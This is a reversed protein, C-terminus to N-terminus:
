SVEHRSGRKWFGRSTVGGKIDVILSVYCVLNKGSSTSVRWPAAGTVVLGPLLKGLFHLLIVLFYQWYQHEIKTVSELETSYQYNTRSRSLVGPSIWSTSVTRTKQNRTSNIGQERAEDRLKLTHAQVLMQRWLGKSCIRPDAAGLKGALRALVPRPACCQNTATILDFSACSSIRCLSNQPGWSGGVGGEFNKIYAKKRYKSHFLPGLCLSNPPDPTGQPPTQSPPTEACIRQYTGPEAKDPPCSSWFQGWRGSWGETGLLRWWQSSM